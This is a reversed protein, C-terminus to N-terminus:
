RKWFKRRTKWTLSFELCIIAIYTNLEYRARCSSVLWAATALGNACPSSSPRNNVICDNTQCTAPGCGTCDAGRWGVALLARRALAATGAGPRSDMRADAAATTSSSTRGGPVSRPEGFQAGLFGSTAKCEWNSRELSGIAVIAAHLADDLM